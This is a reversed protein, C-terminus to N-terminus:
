KTENEKKWLDALELHAKDNLTMLIRKGDAMVDVVTIATNTLWTKRYFTLDMGLIGVLMVRLLGGHSVIAVHEGKHKELLADFGAVSREMVKDFSGEGPFPHLFPNDFFKQYSEGYEQQLQSITKGEWEGFHIERFHEDTQLPVGTEKAIAEATKMARQLPSVYIADLPLHRFRKGLLDAQALGTESLAIDTMGQYKGEKNWQTEGHRILYFRTKTEKKM